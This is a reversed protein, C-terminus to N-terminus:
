HPQKQFQDIVRQKEALAQELVATRAVFAMEIRLRDIAATIRAESAGIEARTRGESDRLDARLQVQEAYLRAQESVLSEMKASLTRLEPAPFDQIVKRTEEVAGM